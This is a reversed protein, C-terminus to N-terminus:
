LGKAVELLHDFLWMPHLSSLPRYRTMDVRFVRKPWTPVESALAYGMFEVPRHFPMEWYVGLIFDALGDGLFKERVFLNKDRSMTGKVEISGLPTVFDHGDDSYLFRADLEYGYVEEFAQEAMMGVYDEVYENGWFREQKYGGKQERRGQAVLKV